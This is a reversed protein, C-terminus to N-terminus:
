DPNQDAATFAKNNDMEVQSIKFLFKNSNADVHLIFDRALSFNGTGTPRDMARGLRKLDNFGKGELWLELRRQLYIEELLKTSGGPISGTFYASGAFTYAPNRRKILTELATTAGGDNGSKALGEAKILYMEGLRMYLFDFNWDTPTATRLTFKRQLFFKITGSVGPPTASYFNTRRVDSTPYKDYLYKPMAKFEGAGAYTAGSTGDVFSVYSSISLDTSQTASAQSAWMFEPNSGARFGSSAYTTSDMLNAAGFKTIAKDAYDAAEAWKETQLSIEAHIGYAVPLSIYSKNGGFPTAAGGALQMLAIASDIDVTMRSYVDGVNGRPNGTREATSPTTYIPVGPNSLGAAFPKCYFQALRFYAWARYAYAEGKIQALENPSGTAKGINALILNAGNVLKYALYWTNTSESSGTTSPGTWDYYGQFWGYINGSVVDATMLDGGLDASKVGFDADQRAGIGTLTSAALRTSMLRAMGDLVSRCGDATEYLNEDTIRDSPVTDLYSKKCGFSFLSIATAAIYIYKNAKM